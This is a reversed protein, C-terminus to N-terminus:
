SVTYPIRQSDLTEQADALTMVRYAPKHTRDYPPSHQSAPWSEASRARGVLSVTRANFRNALVGGQESMTQFTAWWAAMQTLSGMPNRSSRMFAELLKKLSGQVALYPRLHIRVIQGAPHVSEVLLEDPAPALKECEKELREKAAKLNSVAHGPGFVGQHLLKYVDLIDIAIYRQVHARILAAVAEDAM